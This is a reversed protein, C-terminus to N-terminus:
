DLTSEGTWFEKLIYYSEKLREHYEPKKGLPELEFETMQIGETGLGAGVNISDIKLYEVGYVEYYDDHIYMNSPDAFNLLQWPLKIEVFGDGACFDALSNFDDANPNANGYTLLGTEYSKMVSYHYPNRMDFESNELKKDTQQDANGIENMQYFEDIQLLMYIKNFTTSDVSPFEQSFINYPTIEDYFLAELTDYRAQVWVRSEEKGNIEIVFDAADSMSISLNTAETAGSKKTIDIPIYLRNLNLHFGDEEVLFYIFKEDYKMSLLTGNQESVLDEEKWESIEGDVYCVSEEKGPDFSLIGFYQENTQYDSWYPTAKLNINAMTNWTRKFWEDQWTFVIGGNSGAQMIDQYMSILAEGQDTESMGGQNRGLGMELAAMGRSSPVGFETIVVPMSHHNNIDTLYQLYTNEEHDDTLRYYDPYYPYIHYSAFQGAFFTEKCKVNEVDVCAAKQFYKMVNEDYELPDTTAWNAFAIAKQTGYKSTEYTIVRDGIDALFIEFNTANETYLYEGDYQPLQEFSKNTYTVLTPEWEIGLIYGYVWQSIDKDYVNSMFDSNQRAKHRGHVIDVVAKCDELFPEYFEKDLASYNANILYDDVWVGHLLYLPESNNINYEYFAEYFDEPGVTYVRVINAGMEQIQAFWRLYEEKTIASETAYYGPKGLGMNVGRVEFVEFGDGRDIYLEGEEAKSFYTVEEKNPIYIVGTYYYLYDFELWIAIVVFTAILVRKM